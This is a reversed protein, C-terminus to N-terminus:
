LLKDKWIVSIKRFSQAHRAKIDAISQEVQRQRIGGDNINLYVVLWAKSGYGKAIKKKISRELAAPIADAREVWDAVTDLELKGDFQYEDWMKRGPMLAITAEVNEITEGVRAYGDPWLESLDALRVQAMVNHRALEALTWADLLFQRQPAKFERSRCRKHLVHVARRFDLPSRWQALDARAEKLEAPSLPPGSEADDFESPGWGDDAPDWGDDCAEEIFRDLNPDAPEPPEALEPHLKRMATTGAEMVLFDRHCKTCTALRKLTVTGQFKNPTGCHPCDVRITALPPKSKRPM